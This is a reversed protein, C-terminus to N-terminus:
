DEERSGWDLGSVLLAGAMVCIWVLPNWVGFGTVLTGIM